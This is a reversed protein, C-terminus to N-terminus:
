TCQDNIYLTIRFFGYIPSSFQKLSCQNIEYLDILPFFKCINNLIYYKNQCNINLPKKKSRIFASHARVSLLITTLFCIIVLIATALRYTGVMKVLVNKSHFVVTTKETAFSYSRQEKILVWHFNFPHIHHM